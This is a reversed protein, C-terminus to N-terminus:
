IVTETEKIVLKEPQSHTKENNKVSSIDEQIAELEAEESYMNIYSRPRNIKVEAEHSVIATTLPANEAKEIDIEEDDEAAQIISGAPSRLQCLQDDGSNRSISFHKRDGGQREIGDQKQSLKIIAPGHKANNRGGSMWKRLSIVSVFVVLIFVVLSFSAVMIITWDTKNKKKKTRKGGLSNNRTTNISNNMKNFGGNPTTRFTAHQLLKPTINAPPTKAKKNDVNSLVEKPARSRDDPKTVSKDTPKPKTPDYTTVQVLFGKGVIANDSKFELRLQNSKVLIPRPAIVPKDSNCYKYKLSSGATYSEISLYDNKCKETADLSGAEVDFAKFLLYISNTDAIINWTCHNNDFYENPYNPTKIEHMENGNLRLNNQCASIYRTRFGVEDSSSNSKFFIWLNKSPAKYLSNALEEGCIRRLSKSKLFPKSGDRIEVYGFECPVYFTVFDFTITTTNKINVNWLCKQNFAEDSRAIIEGSSSTFQKGCTYICGYVEVKLCPRTYSHVPLLQLYRTVFPDSIQNYKRTNPLINATLVGRKHSTDFYLTWQKQDFSHKLKFRSVRGESIGETALGTVQTYQVLDIQYYVSAFPSLKDGSCWALPHGLRGKSADYDKYIGPSSSLQVNKIRGSGMGLPSQCGCQRYRFASGQCPKGGRLPKPSECLRPRSSVSFGQYKPFYDTANQSNIHCSSWGAWNSWGGDIPLPRGGRKFLFQQSSSVFIIVFFLTKADM